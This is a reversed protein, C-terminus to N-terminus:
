IKGGCKPCFQKIITVIEVNDQECRLKGNVVVTRLEPNAAM